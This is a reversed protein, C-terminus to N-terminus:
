WFGKWRISMLKDTESEHCTYPSLMVCHDSHLSQINGIHGQALHKM